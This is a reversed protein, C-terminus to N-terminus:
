PLWFSGGGQFISDREVDVLDQLHQRVAKGEDHDVPYRV